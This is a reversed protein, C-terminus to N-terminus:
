TECKGFWEVVNKDEDLWTLNHMPWRFYLCFNVVWPTFSRGVLRTFKRESVLSRNKCEAFYNYFPDFSLNVKVLRPIRVECM